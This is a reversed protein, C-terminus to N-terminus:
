DRWDSVIKKIHNRYKIALIIGNMLYIGCGFIIIYVYLNQVEFVKSLMLCFMYNIFSLIIIQYINKYDYSFIGLLFKVEIISIINNAIISVGTGIAVGVVGYEKILIYNLGINLILSFINNYLIYKAYKTMTLISGIPGSIADVLFAFALVILAVQAERSVYDEGFVLLLKDSLFLFLFFMPIVLYTVIRVIRKMEKEIEKNKNESYLKSILPWFAIFPTIFVSILSIYNQSVKYIGVSQLDLYESIMIKDVNQLLLGIGSVLAVTASYKIFEKKENSDIKIELKLHTGLLKKISIARLVITILESVIFSYLAAYLGDMKCSIMIIFLLMKLINNLVVSFLTVKVVLGQGQIFGDLIAIIVKISLMLLFLNLTNEPIPLMGRVLYIIILLVTTTLAVVFFAFQMLSNAKSKDNLVKAIEKILNRDIGLIPIISLVTTYTLFMTYQGYLTPELVRGLVIQFVFALGLGFIKLLFTSSIKRYLGNM